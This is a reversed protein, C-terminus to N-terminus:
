VKREITGQATYHLGCETKSTGSWRGARSYEGPVSGAVPATCHTCGVTPYGREHLPNYPVGHRQVYDWVRARDWSALPSVKLVQYQWDWTVVPLASRSPSQIRMLGTLWVDAGALASQMPEVKRIACCRDPDHRWLEAGYQEAQAEPELTTGRNVFALHPYRAAMRDRLAYTEPFLFMTDLYVVDLPVGHGAVMDILACGEMGFSTTLVMRQHRFRELAWAVLRPPAASEWAADPQAPDIWPSAM